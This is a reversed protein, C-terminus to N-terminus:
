EQITGATETFHEAKNQLNYVAYMKCPRRNRCTNDRAMSRPPIVETSMTVPLTTIQRRDHCQLAAERTTQYVIGEVLTLM